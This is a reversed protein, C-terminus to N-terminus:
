SSTLKDKARELVNLVEYFPFEWQQQRPHSYFQIVLDGAEQSIEAFQVGEYLIEAVLHERDPLSAVNIGFKLSESKIVLPELFGIFEGEAGYCAGGIKPAYINVVNGFRELEEHIIKKEPHNIIKELIQQARENIQKPDSTVHTFFSNKSVLKKLLKLKAHELVKLAEECSFEWCKKQPHSYFQVVMEEGDRAIKAWQYSSYYVEAVFEKEDFYDVIEIEFNSM